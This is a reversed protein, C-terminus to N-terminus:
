RSYAGVQEVDTLHAVKGEVSTLEENASDNRQQVQKKEKNLKSLTEDKAAVDDNLARIIGDKKMAENELKEHQSVLDQYDKQQDKYEKEISNADKEFDKLLCEEQKIKEMNEALQAEGM